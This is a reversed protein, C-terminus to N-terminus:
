RSFLTPHDDTGARYGTSSQSQETWEEELCTSRWKGVSAAKITLTLCLIRVPYMEVVTSRLANIHPGKQAERVPEGSTKM